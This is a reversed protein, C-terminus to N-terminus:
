WVALNRAGSGDMHIKKKSFHWPMNKALQPLWANGYITKM